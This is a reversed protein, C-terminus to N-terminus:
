GAKSGGNQETNNYSNIWKLMISISKAMRVLIEIRLWFALMM